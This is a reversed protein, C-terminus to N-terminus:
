RRQSRLHLTALIQPFATASCAKGWPVSLTSPRQEASPAARLGRAERKPSRRAAIAARAARGSGTVRPSRGCRGAILLLSRCAGSDEVVLAVLVAAFDCGTLMPSELSPVQRTQPSTCEGLGAASPHIDGPVRRVLGLALM